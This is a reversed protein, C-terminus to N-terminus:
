TWKVSDLGDKLWKYAQDTAPRKGFVDVLMSTYLTIATPNVERVISVLDTDAITGLSVDVKSSNHGQLPESYYTIGPEDRGDTDTRDPVYLYGVLRVPMLSYLEFRTCLTVFWTSVIEHYMALSAEWVCEIRRRLREASYLDWVYGGDSPPKDPGPWPSRIPMENDIQKQLFMLASALTSPSFQRLRGTPCKWISRLVQKMEDTSFQSELLSHRGLVSSVLCWASEHLFANNQIPIGYCRLLEDLPTKLRDKVDLWAWAPSDMRSRTFNRPWDRNPLGDETPLEVVNPLNSSGEYWSTKYYGKNLKAVGLPKLEGKEDVPAILRSLPGLGEVFAEMARRIHQGFTEAPLDSGANGYWLHGFASDLIVSAVSPNNVVIPEIIDDIQDTALEVATTLVDEWKDLRGADLSLEVIDVERQCIADFAFWQRLVPLAFDLRESEEHILHTNLLGNGDSISTTLDTLKVSAHGDTLKVALSRLMSETAANNETRANEIARRVMWEILKAMSVPVQDENSELYKALLIAFLPRQVSRRVADPLDWIVESSDSDSVLKFVTEAEELSMERVYTTAVGDRIWPLPRSVLLVRTKPWSLALALAEEYMRRSDSIPLDDIQDIVISAGISTVDGLEPNLQKIHSELGNGVDRATIHFPVPDLPSRSLNLADQYVKEALFSKGSGLTGVLLSVEGENPFEPTALVPLDAMREYMRNAQNRTLGSAMFRALCRAKSDRSLRELRSPRRWNQDNRFSRIEEDKITRNFADVFTEIDNDKLECWKPRQNQGIAEIIANTGEDRETKQPLRFVWLRKNSKIAENIEQVVPTSTNDGSIWIVVDAEKIHRLYSDDLPESSAPTYEFAWPSFCNSKRLCEEASERFQRLDDDMVSSIFALLPREAPRIKSSSM